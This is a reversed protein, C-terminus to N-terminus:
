KVEKERERLVCARVCVSTLIAGGDDTVSRKECNSTSTELMEDAVKNMENTEGLCHLM